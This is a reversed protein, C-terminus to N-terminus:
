GREGPGAPPPSLPASATPFPSGFADAHAVEHVPKRRPPGLPVAPRGVPVVAFPHIGDPIGVVARLA